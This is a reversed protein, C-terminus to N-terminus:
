AGAIQVLQHNIPLVEKMAFGRAADLSILGEAVRSGALRDILAGIQGSLFDRQREAIVARSVITEIEVKLKANVEGLDHLEARSAARGNARVITFITKATELNDGTIHGRLIAELDDVHMESITLRPMAYEAPDRGGTGPEHIIGAAMEDEQFPIPRRFQAGDGRTEAIQEVSPEDHGNPAEHEDSM